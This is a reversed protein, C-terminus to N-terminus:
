PATCTACRPRRPAYIIREGSRTEHRRRTGGPPPAPRRHRAQQRRPDLLRLAAPLPRPGHRRRGQPYDLKECFAAFQAVNWEIVKTYQAMTSADNQHHSLGHWYNHVGDLFDFRRGSQADGIMFTSIRTSDTWYALALIDLM